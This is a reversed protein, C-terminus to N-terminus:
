DMRDKVRKTIAQVQKIVPIIAANVEEQEEAKDPDTEEEPQTEARRELNAQTNNEVKSNHTGLPPSARGIKQIATELISGLRSELGEVYPDDEDDGTTHGDAPTVADEGEIDGGVPPSLKDEPKEERRRRLYDMFDKSNTLIM